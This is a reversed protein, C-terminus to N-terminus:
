KIGRNKWKNRLTLLLYTPYLGIVNIATKVSKVKPSIDFKLLFSYPKMRSIFERPNKSFHAISILMAYMFGLQNMQVNRLKEDAYICPVEKVWKEIIWLVDNLNRDNISKSISGERKRYVYFPLQMAKLKKVHAFLQFSWDFDESLLGKKFKINNDILMDRRIFKACASTNYLNLELLYKLASYLTSNNIVDANYRGEPLFVKGRILHKHPFMVVDTEDDQNILDIAKAVANNDEWYDDSDLFVVFDGTAAELGANRADSLGGNTKHVVKVRYDKAAYEDCMQPCRDPSGDDVLIIELNKYSQSLVSQVCEDLFKEVNYIPIIVSIKM